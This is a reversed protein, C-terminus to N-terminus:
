GEVLVVEDGDRRFPVDIGQNRSIDRVYDTIADFRPDNGRLFEPDCNDDIQVPLFSVRSIKKGTVIAKAVVTKQCDAPLTFKGGKGKDPNLGVLHKFSASQEIDAKYAGPQEIAFNALSYFIACGKYIEVPKLIHAHHGIVLDAGADIAAHGVERQYDALVAPIMHIGWHFSAIVIDARERAASIDAIMGALDGHHAFTHIRAPTGPQDHEIQEYHTFARMPACGPRRDEAWYGMPLISNYGLWAVRADGAQNFAPKRAQALNAGAGIVALDSKKLHELTDFFADQGFDMCHNSAFSIVDYGVDKFIAANVPDTRMALGAQPLPTGRTSLNPELQGFVVDAARLTERVHRLISAPDKRCPGLDGTALITAADSM